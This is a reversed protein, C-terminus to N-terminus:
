SVTATTGQAAVWPGHAAGHTARVQVAYTTGPTLNRVTAAHSLPTWTAPKKLPDYVLANVGLLFLNALCPPM